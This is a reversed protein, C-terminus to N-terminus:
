GYIIKTIESWSNSSFSNKSNNLKHKKDTSDFLISKTRSDKNHKNYDNHIKVLDDILYDPNLIALHRVKEEFTELFIISDVFNIIKNKILWNFIREKAIKKIDISSAFHLGYKTKHSIIFISDNKANSLKIFQLAGKYFKIRDSTDSYIFAQCHQWELDGKKEKILNKLEGTNKSNLDESYLETLNNKIFFVVSESYDVLTNDIDIAIKM